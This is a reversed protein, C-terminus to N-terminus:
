ICHKLNYDHYMSPYWEVQKYLLSIDQPLFIRLRANSLLQLTIYCFYVLALCPCSCPHQASHPNEPCHVHVHTSYQVNEFEPLCPTFVTKCSPWFHIVFVIIQWIGDSTETFPLLGNAWPKPSCGRREGIRELQKVKGQIIKMYYLTHAMFSPIIFLIFHVITHLICSTSCM